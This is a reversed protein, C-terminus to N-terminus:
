QQIFSYRMPIKFDLRKRPRHKLREVAEQVEVIEKDRGERMATAVCTELHNRLVIRNIKELSAQVASLQKMIDPCYADDDVMRLVGQLHGIATRLRRDAAEHYEPKM